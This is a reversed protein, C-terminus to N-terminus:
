TRPLRLLDHMSQGFQRITTDGLKEALVQDLQQQFIEEARGGHFYSPKGVTKRMAKLVQSFLAEGVFSGIAERTEEQNEGTTPSPKVTSPKDYTAAHEVFSSADVRM